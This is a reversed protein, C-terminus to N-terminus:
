ADIYKSFWALKANLKANFVNREDMLAGKDSCYLIM